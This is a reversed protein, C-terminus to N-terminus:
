KEDLMVKRYFSLLQCAPAGDIVQSAQTFLNLASWVPCDWDCVRVQLSSLQFQPYPPVEALKVQFVWSILFLLQNKNESVDRLLFVNTNTSSTM